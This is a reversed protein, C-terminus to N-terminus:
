VYGAEVKVRSGVAGDMFALSNPIPVLITPSVLVGFLCPTVCSDAEWPQVGAHSAPIFIRGDGGPVPVLCFPLTFCCNFVVM